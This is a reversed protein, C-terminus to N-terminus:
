VTPSSAATRCMPSSYMSRPSPPCYWLPSCLPFEIPRDKSVAPPLMAEAVSVARPIATLSKRPDENKPEHAAYAPPNEPSEDRLCRERTPQNLEVSPLDNMLTAPKEAEVTIVPRLILRPLREQQKPRSRTFAGRDKMLPYDRRFRINPSGQGVIGRRPGRRHSEGADKGLEDLCDLNRRSRAGGQTAPARRPAADPEVAM